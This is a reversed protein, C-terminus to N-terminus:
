NIQNQYFSKIDLFLNPHEKKIKNILANLNINVVKKGNSKEAEKKIEDMAVIWVDEFDAPIHQWITKELKLDFNEQQTTKLANIITNLTEVSVFTYVKSKDEKDVAFMPENWNWEGQKLELTKSNPDDSKKIELLNNESQKELGLNESLKNIKEILEIDHKKKM